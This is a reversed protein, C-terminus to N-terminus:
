PSFDKGATLPAGKGAEPKREGNMRGSREKRRERNYALSDHVRGQDNTM